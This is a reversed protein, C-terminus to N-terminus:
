LERFISDLKRGINDSSYMSACESAIKLNDYNDYTSMMAEMAQELDAINKPDILIGNSDNVITSPGGEKTAIVPIGMAMAEILVVGFTEYDSPQVLVNTERLTDIIETKKLQGKLIVTNHLSLEDILKKLKSYEPGDGVINVKFRHGRLKLKSATRILLDYNKLPVLRGIATFEFLDRSKPRYGAKIFDDNVINPVCISEVDYRKKIVDSLPKSVTLVKDIQPYVEHAMADVRSNVEPRILESWHELGVIKGAYEDKIALASFMNNLYHAYVIDPTGELQCVERFLRRFMQQQVKATLGPIISLLSFPLLHYSYVGEERLHKIGLKRPYLRTRGDVVLITVKHGLKRLAAAQAAEFAGWQLDHPEPYGRSIIFINM